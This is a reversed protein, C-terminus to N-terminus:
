TEVCRTLYRVIHQQVLPLARKVGLRKFYFDVILGRQAIGLAGRCRQVWGPQQVNSRKLPPNKLGIDSYDGGKGHDTATITLGFM